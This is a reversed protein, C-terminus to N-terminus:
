SAKTRNQKARKDSFVRWGTHKESLTHEHDFKGAERLSLQKKELPGPDPRNGIGQVTM